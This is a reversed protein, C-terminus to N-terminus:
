FEHKKKESKSISGSTVFDLETVFGRVRANKKGSHAALCFM